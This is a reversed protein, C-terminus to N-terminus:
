CLDTYDFNHNKWYDHLSTLATCYFLSLVLYSIGEFQPTPSLSKLIGQGALFDLCDIRFSILESYESSPSISFGFSWYKQGDLSFLLNM